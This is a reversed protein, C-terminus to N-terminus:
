RSLYKATEVLKFFEAKYGEPDDKQLDNRMSLINDYSSQGKFESDRLLMGFEALCGAFLYGTTRTGPTIEKETVRKVILKSEDEGPEKYRLKVTMLNESKNIRTQQYELADVGPVEEESGAPIIEYFATVTHGSGIDGADRTDDNFDEKNLLRNEYGILRYAKVQAPNFEIQIKVDMAITYLTGWIEKGLVKKAEMINDIYAYNGNGANSIKEMRADKYNGMGFGLVTLFVGEERKEEILREMAADSSEGINFDGDTALIVRNNGGPIYNEKAVKYALRIGAGGATSGGAQLRELASIIKEKNDGPTSELVLGAAGAYVVIAVRDEPRLEDVLIKFASKLLPLKNSSNMSGSVDLLFVLNGAPLDRVNVEKGQLGVRFLKRGPNWSASGMELNISFPDGNTPQPYDYGFYNILEETRVADRPPMMNDNLFRRVNAYSARDVDVSFTSLPDHSVLKFNNETIKDYEETNYDPPPRYDNGGQTLYGTSPAGAAKHMVWRSKSAEEAEYEMLFVEDKLNKLPQLKVQYESANGLKLKYDAFGTMTFELCTGSTRVQIRFQGDIDTFVFNNTGSESVTVGPIARGTGADTVKGTVTRQDPGLPNWVSFIVSILIIISKM